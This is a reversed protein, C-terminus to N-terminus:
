EGSNGKQFNYKSVQFLTTQGSVPKLEVSLTQSPSSQWVLKPIVLSLSSSLTAETSSGTPLAGYSDLRYTLNAASVLSLGAWYPGSPKGSYAVGPLNLHTLTADVTAQGTTAFRAEPVYKHIFDRYSSVRTYVGYSGKAACSSRPNPFNAFSVIGVQQWDAGNRVLLPGGSDGSCSDKGGELYGACIQTDYIAGGAFQNYATQCDSNSVLPLDVQLLLDSSQCTTEAPHDQTCGWGMTTSWGPLDGDENILMPTLTVAQHLELLAIDDELTDLDWGPATIIRTVGILNSHSVSTEDYFGAAVQVQNPLEKRGYDDTVCHAATMVWTPAILTGGCEFSWSIGSRHYLGVMWPSEGVKAPQGGVIRLGPHVAAPSAAPGPAEAEALTSPPMLGFGVMLGIALCQRVM